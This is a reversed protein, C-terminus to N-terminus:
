QVNIRGNTLNGSASYGNSLRLSLSGPNDGTLTTPQNNVRTTGSLVVSNGNFALATVVPNDFHVKKSSDTYFMDAVIQHRTNYSAKVNFGISGGSITGNSTVQSGNIKILNLQVKTPLYSITYNVPTIEKFTINNFSGTIASSTLIDYTKLQANPNLGIELTGALTMLGAASVLSDSGSADIDIHIIGSNTMNGLSSANGSLTGRSEIQLNGIVSENLNLIGANDTTTGSYTNAGNLNLIGNGIKQINPGNTQEGEIPPTISLTNSLDFIITGTERVFIDQGMAKGDEASIHNPYLHSTSSGKIGAVASNNSIQQADIIDDNDANLLWYPLTGISFADNSTSTVIRTQAALETGSLLINLMKYIPAM